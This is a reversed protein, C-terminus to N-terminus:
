IMRLFVPLYGWEQGREILEFAPAALFLAFGDRLTSRLRAPYFISMEIDEYLSLRPFFRPVSACYADFRGEFAGRLFVEERLIVIYFALTTVAGFIVSVSAMGTQAGVGTAGIASFVYLPNRTISYPGHIVLEGGKRGGIYLTCWLRGIIAIGILGVGTIEVLDHQYTADTFAPGCYLLATTAILVLLSFGLRRRRQFTDLSKVTIDSM